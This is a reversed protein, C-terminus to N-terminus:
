TSHFSDNDAEENETSGVQEEGKEKDDLGDIEEESTDLEEPGLNGGALMKMIMDSRQKNPCDNSKLSNMIRNLHAIPNLSSGDSTSHKRRAKSSEVPTDNFKASSDVMVDAEKPPAWTVCGIEYCPKDVPMSTLKEYDDNGWPPPPIGFIQRIYGSIMPIEQGRLFVKEM